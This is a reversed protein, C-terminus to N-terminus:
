AADEWNCLAAQAADAHPKILEEALDALVSGLRKTPEGLLEAACRKATDYEGLQLAKLLNGLQLGDLEAANKLFVTEANIYLDDASVKTQRGIRMDRGHVLAEVSDDFWDSGQSTELWDPADEAPLENDYRRQASQMANGM